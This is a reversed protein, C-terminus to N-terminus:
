RLLHQKRVEKVIFIKVALGFDVSVTLSSVNQLCKNEVELRFAVLDDVRIVGADRKIDDLFNLFNLFILPFIIDIFLVLRAVARVCGFSAM